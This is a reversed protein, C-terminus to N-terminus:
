QVVITKTVTVRDGDYAPITARRMVSAICGGTPTGAFPPGQLNASTVRGSPAFTISLAATGSPDGDKRCSSAQAAAAQLASVAAARNFETGPAAPPPANKAVVPAKPEPPAVVAPESTPPTAPEAKVAENPEAKVAESKATSTSPATNKVTATAPAPTSPEEAAPSPEASPAPAPEAIAVPAIPEAAAPTAPSSEVIGVPAAPPASTRARLGVVAVVGAALAAAGLWLAAGSRRKEAPAAKVPAAVPKTTTSAAASATAPAVVFKRERGAKSESAPSSPLAVDVDIRLSEAPASVPAAWQASESAAPLVASMDFLPITGSRTTQAPNSPKSKIEEADILELDEVIPLRPTPASSLLDVASAGAIGGTGASLSVLFDDAARKAAPAKPRAAELALTHLNPADSSSAPIEEADVFEPERAKLPPKAPARTHMHFAPQPKPLAPKPANIAVTNEDDGWISVEAGKPLPTQTANLPLPTQAASL